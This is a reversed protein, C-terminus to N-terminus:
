DYSKLIKRELMYKEQTYMNNSDLREGGATVPFGDKDYGSQM